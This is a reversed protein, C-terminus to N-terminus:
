IRKEDGTMRTSCLSVDTFTIVVDPSSHKAFYRILAMGSAKNFRTVNSGGSGAFFICSIWRIGMPLMILVM